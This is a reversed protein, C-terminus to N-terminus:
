LPALALPGLPPSTELANLTELANSPYFWVHVFVARQLLPAPAACNAGVGSLRRCPATAAVAPVALAAPQTQRVSSCPSRSSSTCRAVINPSASAGGARM